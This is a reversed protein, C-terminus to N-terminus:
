FFIGSPHYIFLCFSGPTPFLPKNFRSSTHVSFPERHTQFMTDGYKSHTVRSSNIWSIEFVICVARVRQILICKSQPVGNLLFTALLIGHDEHCIYNTPHDLITYIGFRPTVSVMYRIERLALFEKRTM